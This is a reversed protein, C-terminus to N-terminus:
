IPECRGNALTYGSRCSGDINMNPDSIVDRTSTSPSKLARTSPSTPEAACASVALLASAILFTGLRRM